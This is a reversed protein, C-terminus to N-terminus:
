GDEFTSVGHQVRVREIGTLAFVPWILDLWQAALFLTGLSLGPTAKKAALGVAFRGVFM